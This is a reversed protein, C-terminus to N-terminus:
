LDLEAWACHVAPRKKQSESPSVKLPHPDQVEEVRLVRATLGSGATWLAYAGAIGNGRFEVRIKNGRQAAAPYVSLIRPEEPVAKQQAFIGGLSVLVLLCIVGSKRKVSARRTTRAPLAVTM